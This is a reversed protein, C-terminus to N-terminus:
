PRGYGSVLAVAVALGSGCGSQAFQGMEYSEHIEYSEHKKTYKATLLSGRLRAIRWLYQTAYKIRM